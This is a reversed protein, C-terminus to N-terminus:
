VEGEVENELRDDDSEDVQEHALMLAMDGKEDKSSLLEVSEDDASVDGEVEVSETEETEDAGQLAVM